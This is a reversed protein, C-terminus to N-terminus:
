VTWILGSIFFNILFNNINLFLDFDFYYFILLLLLYYYFFLKGKWQSRRKSSCAEEISNRAYISDPSDTRKSANSALFNRTKHSKTLDRNFVQNPKPNQTKPHKETSFRLHTQIIKSQKAPSTRSHLAKPSKMYLSKREKEQKEYPTV